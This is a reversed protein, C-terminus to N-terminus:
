FMRKASEYDGALLSVRSKFDIEGRSDRDTWYHGKLRTAPNGIVELSTSGHHIRSRHEISNTPRNLYMYDLASIDDPSVRALSSRSRSEDSLLIVSISNSTQRIVLFVTKPPQPRGTQPDIWNSSLKGKWSGRLDRSVWKSRQFPSIHWLFRDWFALALTALFVAITYFRLWQPKLNGGTMLIGVAFVVVVVIAVVQVTTKNSM